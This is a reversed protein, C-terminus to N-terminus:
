QHRDHYVFFDTDDTGDRRLCDSGYYFLSSTGIKVCGRAHTNYDVVTLSNLKQLILL